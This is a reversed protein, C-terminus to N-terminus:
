FIFPSVGKRKLWKQDFFPHVLGKCKKQWIQDFFANVLEKGNNQCKQDFFAHVLGKGNKQCKKCQFICPSVGKRKKGNKILFHM